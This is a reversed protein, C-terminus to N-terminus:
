DEALAALREALITCLQEAIESKTSPRALVEGDEDV